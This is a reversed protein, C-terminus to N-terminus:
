EAHARPPDYVSKAFAIKHVRSLTACTDRTLRSRTAYVCRTKCAHRACHASADSSDGDRSQAFASTFMARARSDPEGVCEKEVMARKEVHAATASVSARGSLLADRAGHTKHRELAPARTTENHPQITQSHPLECSVACCIKYAFVGM